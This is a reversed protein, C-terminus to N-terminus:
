RVSRLLMNSIRSLPKVNEQVGGITTYNHPRLSPFRIYLYKTHFVKLVKIVIFYEVDLERIM